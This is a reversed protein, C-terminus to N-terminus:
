IFPTIMVMKRHWIGAEEFPQGLPIFGLKKYFPIVQIQANLYVRPIQFALQSDQVHGEEIFRLIFECLIKGAGKGRYDKIIAFRELKIGKETVRLRATGIPLEGDRVLFHFCELDYLDREINPDVDQEMVFVENRIHFALELDEATEIKYTLFQM